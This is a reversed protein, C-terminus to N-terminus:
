MIHYYIENSRVMIYYAKKYHKIADIFTLFLYM